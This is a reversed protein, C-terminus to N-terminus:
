WVFVFCVVPGDMLWLHERLSPMWCFASQTGSPTIAFALSLGVLNEWVMVRRAGVGEEGERDGGTRLNIYHIGTIKAASGFAGGVVGQVLKRVGEGRNDSDGVM